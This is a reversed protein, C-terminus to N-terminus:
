FRLYAYRIGHKMFQISNLDFLHQFIKHYYKENEKENYQIGCLVTCGRAGNYDICVELKQKVRGKKGYATRMEVSHINSLMCFKRRGMWKLAMPKRGLSVEAVAKKLKKGV